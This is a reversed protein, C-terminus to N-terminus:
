VNAAERESLYEEVDDSRFGWIKRGLKFGRLKGTEALHRVMRRSREIRGAVHHVLLPRACGAAPTRFYSGDTKKESHM